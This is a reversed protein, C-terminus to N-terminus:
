TGYTSSVANNMQDRYLGYLVAYHGGKDILENHTGSEVIRGQDMVIIRQALSITSFRHSILITTRGAVMKKFHTFLGYEAQADLDSTPEDLILISSNSRAIARAIAIRQWQGTSLDYKGFKRGLMTDYGEPMIEIMSHVNAIRAINKVQERKIINRWDGYAINDAATAEYHNTMQFVFSIRSYLYDLPLKRLDVDDLMISGKDPDYLRAILKVLTTKGAGNKGVLAIREGPKVCLSIDHLVNQKSGPYTFSINNIEITGHCSASTKESGNKIIPLVNLFTSLNNIYLIEELSGSAQVALSSLLGRLVGAIGAFMAIDGVTLDGSLVGRAVRGFLIYFIVAFIVSFAFNGIFERSYIRRDEKLFEITLERFRKILIPALNLLKVEAVSSRGTLMSIFYNRWRRKTARTYEKNFRAKSQSWKFLVFPFVIPITVLVIIPDIAFLILVLGIMKIINFILDFMKQLFGTFHASANQQARETVDQFNPDEFWSVDLRAAHKLQDMDIRLSLNDNLRHNFFQTLINVSEGIIVLVMSLFIWPLIPDLEKIGGKSADAIANIFCRGVWALAAPMASNLSKCFLVGLLLAPSTDWSIWWVWRANTLFYRAKDKISQDAPSSM